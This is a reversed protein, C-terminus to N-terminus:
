YIGQTPEGHAEESNEEANSEEVEKLAEEIAAKASKKGAKVLRSSPRPRKGSVDQNMNCNGQFIAKEDIVITATVIDGIVKATSTLEIKEPANLNGNVEGGVVITKADIDGVICGAVGVILTGSVAVNGNITGDVRVSGEANFEGNCEAGKGIITTIQVEQKKM